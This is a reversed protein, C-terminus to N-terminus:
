SSGSRRRRASSTRWGSRGWSDTSGRSSPWGSPACVAAGSARAASPPSPTLRATQAGDPQGEKVSITEPPRALRFGGGAGRVSEVLDAQRLQRFIKECYQGPLGELEAVERASVSVAPGRRALHLICLMGYEAQTTIRM